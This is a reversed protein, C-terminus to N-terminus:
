PLMKTDGGSLGLVDSLRLSSKTVHPTLTRLTKARWAGQAVGVGYALDDAVGLPV